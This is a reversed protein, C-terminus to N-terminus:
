FFLQDSAALSDICDNLKNEVELYFDNDFEDLFMELRSKDGKPNNSLPNESLTTTHFPRSEKSIEVPKGQCFFRKLSNSFRLLLEGDAIPSKYQQVQKNENQFRGESKWKNIVEQINSKADNIM